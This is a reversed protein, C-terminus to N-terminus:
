FIFYKNSGNTYFNIAGYPSNLYIREQGDILQGGSTSIELLYSDANGKEDKVTFSQGSDFTTANPLTIKLYSTGEVGIYYDSVALTTSTTIVRRSRVEIAAAVSSTLIVNNSADLALYKNTLGAAAALGTFQLGNPLVTRGHSASMVLYGSGDTYIDSTRLPSVGFIYRTNTLRLQESTDLIELKKQPDTVGIGVKNATSDVKFVNTDVTLDGSVGLSTLTGVANINTQAPTQITGYFGTAEVRTLGGISGTKITAIGDTIESGSIISFQGLSSSIGISATLQGSVVTHHINDTGLFSSGSVKLGSSASIYQGTPIINLDGDAQTEINTYVSDNHALRLQDLGSSQVHLKVSPNEVGIGIRNQHSDIVFTDNDFNLGNIITGSSANFILSDTADAGFTINDASVIFESVNAHLSGTITLNGSVNMNGSVDLMAKPTTTGIGVRGGTGSMILYGSANTYIDSYVDATGFLEYDTYSLRLQPDTTLVELKRVPDNRGIGVKQTAHNVYLASASVNGNVNLSTLTGVSTINPQSNTSLTGVYNTSTTTTAGSITTPTIIVTSDGIQVSGFQGFSSTIDTFYGVSSSFGTSATLIGVCTVSTSSDSGLITNGSVYLDSSASIATGTPTINLQGTSKVNFIVSTAQDRSVKLQDSSDLIELKSDPYQVGIGVKSGGNDIVLLNSAFNLNNPVSATAANFTLTDTRSDGFTINDASVVFDTVRASLTGSVELNGSVRMNGDVDLMRTPSTTGIGVRAGTGSLILYGNGNTYIDTFVDSTGFIEFDTYSLRLQPDTTLVELKREPDNRGIGVRKTSSNVQLASASLNGAVNLNTLTGVSTVQPQAVSTLEGSLNSASVTTANTLTGGTILITGDTIRSGTIYSYQGVSSSVGASSTIDGTITLTAGNFLMNAEANIGSADISTIVRNNGPNTYEDIIGSGGGGASSTLIVNNSADLALYHASGGTGTQVGQLNLPASAGSLLISGTFQHIDDISDGFHTSGTATLNIVNKNTVNINLENANIAGSVNLSGTLRLSGSGDSESWVLVNSGSLRGDEATQVSGSVGQVMTGVVYAWGFEGM